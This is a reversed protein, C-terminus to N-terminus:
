KLLKKPVTQHHLAALDLEFYPLLRACMKLKSPANRFPTIKAYNKNKAINFFEHRWYM